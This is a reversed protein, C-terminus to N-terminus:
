YVRGNMAKFFILATQLFSLTLGSLLIVNDTKPLDKWRKLGKIVKKLRPTTKETEKEGETEPYWQEPLPPYEPQLQKKYRNETNM